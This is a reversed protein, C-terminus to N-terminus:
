KHRTMKNEFRGEEQEHEAAEGKLEIDTEGAFVQYAQHREQLPIHTQYTQEIQIM